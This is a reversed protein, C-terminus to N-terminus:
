KVKPHEGIQTDFSVFKVIVVEHSAQKNRQQKIEKLKHNKQVKM